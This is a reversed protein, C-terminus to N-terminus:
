DLSFPESDRITKYHLVHYIFVHSHLSGHLCYYTFERFFILRCNRIWYPFFEIEAGAVRDRKRDILVHDPQSFGCRNVDLEAFSKDGCEVFPVRHIILFGITGQSGNSTTTTWKGNVSEVPIFRLGASTSECQSFKLRLIPCETNAIIVLRHFSGQGKSQAMCSRSCDPRYPRGNDGNNKGGPSDPGDTSGSDTISGSGGGAIIQGTFLEGAQHVVPIYAAIGM